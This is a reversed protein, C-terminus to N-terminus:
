LVHGILASGGPHKLAEGLAVEAFRLSETFVGCIRPLIGSKQGVQPFLVGCDARNELTDRKLAHAVAQLGQYGAHGAVDARLENRAQDAVPVAHAAERARRLPHARRADLEVIEHETVRRGALPEVRASSPM